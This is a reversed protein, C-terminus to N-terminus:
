TLLFGELFFQRQIQATTAGLAKRVGIERTREQVAVFMINMVGLGGLALTVIGVMSFFDRMSQIMRAFMLSSLATDWVAIPNRDDPDFGHSPALVRRIEREIPWDVDETRGTRGVFAARTIELVWPQPVVVLQSLTGPPVGTRPVDRAMTGFPIFIKDN